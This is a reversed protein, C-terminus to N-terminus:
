VRRHHQVPLGGPLLPQSDSPFSLASAALSRVMGAEVVGKKVAAALDLLHMNCSNGEYWVSSIGVQRARPWGTLARAAPAYLARPRLLTAGSRSRLAATNRRLPEFCCSGVRHHLM